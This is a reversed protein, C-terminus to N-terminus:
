KKLLKYGAFLIMLIVALIASVKPDLISTLIVLVAAMLAMIGDGKGGSLGAVRSREIKNVVERKIVKNKVNKKKAM